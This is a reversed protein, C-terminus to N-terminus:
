VFFTMNRHKM